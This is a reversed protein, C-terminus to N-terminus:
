SRGPRGRPCPCPGGRSRRRVRRGAPSRESGRASPPPMSILPGGARWEGRRTGRRAVGTGRVGGRGDSRFERPGPVACGRASGAVGARLRVVGPAAPSVGLPRCRWRCPSAGTAGADGRGSGAVGARLCWRSWAVGDGWRARGRWGQRRCGACGVRGGRQPVGEAPSPGEGQGPRGPARPVAALGRRRAGGLAASRGCATSPAAWRRVGRGAVPTPCGSGAVATGLRPRRRIGAARGRAAGSRPVADRADVAGSVASRGPGASVSVRATSRQRVFRTRAMSAGDPRADDGGRVTTVDTAPVSLRATPRQQVFRTRAM